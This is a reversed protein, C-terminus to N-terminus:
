RQELYERIREAKRLLLPVQKDSSEVFKTLAHTMQEFDEAFKAHEQDRWTEGLKVFQRQITTIQAQLDSNFRKLEIAFRRLEVPDVIAKAM